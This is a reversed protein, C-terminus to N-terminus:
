ASFWPISYLKPHFWQLKILKICLSLQTFESKLHLSLYFTNSTKAPRLIKLTLSMEFYYLLILFMNKSDQCLVYIRMCDIM